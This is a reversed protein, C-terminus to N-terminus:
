GLVDVTAGATATCVYVNPKLGTEEEYCSSVNDAFADVGETRVFAVACGGLGAGTMRAGYCGDERQACVVIANLENSSVEFDDRLSIHSADMLRGLEVADGRLMVQAAQLARANETVVHLARRRTTEDLENARALFQDVSVDRLAPVGFFRAAAECQARRENYVSDVLGRRTMTDLVVVVTDPPLPVAQMELSRCDILLAHDAVGAASILQDM